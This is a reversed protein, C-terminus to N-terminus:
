INKLLYWVSGAFILLGVNIGKNDTSNNNTTSGAVTIKGYGNSNYINALSYAYKSGGGYTKFEKVHDSNFVANKAGKKLTELISPYILSGNSWKGRLTDATADIGQEFSVYNQVGITKAKNLYNFFTSGQKKWTTALPNFKAKTNELQMWALLFNIRNTTVPLGLEKLLAKAFERRDYM